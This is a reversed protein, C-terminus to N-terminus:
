HNNKASIMFDFDSTDVNKNLIVFMAHNGDTDICNSINTAGLRKILRTYFKKRKEINDELSIKIIDPKFGSTVYAKTLAVSLELTDSIDSSGTLKTTYVGNVDKLFDIGVIKPDDHLLEIIIKYNSNQETVFDFITVNASKKILKLNVQRSLDVVEFLKM